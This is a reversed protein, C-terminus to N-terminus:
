VSLTASKRRLGLGVLGIALLALSGPEPVTAIQRIGFSSIGLQHLVDFDLALGYTNTVGVEHKGPSWFSLNNGDLLSNQFVATNSWGLLAANAEVNLTNTFAADWFEFHYDSWAWATSNTIEFSLNWQGSISSDFTIVKDFFQIPMGPDTEIIARGGFSAYPILEDEAYDETITVIENAADVLTSTISNSDLPWTDSVDLGVLPASISANSYVFMSIFLLLIKTRM